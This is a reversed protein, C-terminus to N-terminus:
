GSELNRMAREHQASKYRAKLHEEYLDLLCKTVFDLICRHIDSSNFEVTEKSSEATFWNGGIRTGDIFLKPFSYRFDNTLKKLGKEQLCSRMEEGFYIERLFIQDIELVQKANMVAQLISAM